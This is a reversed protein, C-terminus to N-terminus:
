YSSKDTKKQKDNTETEQDSDSIILISDNFGNNLQPLIDPKVLKKIDVCKLFVKQEAAEENQTEAAGESNSDCKNAVDNQVEKQSESGNQEVVETNDTEKGENSKGDSQNKKSRKSKNKRCKSSSDSEEM